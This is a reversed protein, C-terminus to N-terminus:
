VFPPTGVNTFFSNLLVQATQPPPIIGPLEQNSDFDIVNEMIKHRSPDNTFDCPEFEGVIFRLIQLCSLTASDGLYVQVLDTLVWRYTFAAM